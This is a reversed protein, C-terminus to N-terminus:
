ETRHVAKYNAVSRNAPSHPPVFIEPPIQTAIMRRFQSPHTKVGFWGSPSTRRAVIGRITEVDTETKLIDRWTKLHGLHFYELPSGMMGTSFFLHGLYHSGSRGTSCIIYADAPATFRPFDYTSGFQDFDSEPEAPGLGNMNKTGNSLEVAGGGAEIPWPRFYVFM